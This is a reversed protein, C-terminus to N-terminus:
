IGLELLLLPAALGPGLRAAAHVRRQELLLLPAALGPGCVRPHVTDRHEVLLLPTVLSSVLNRVNGILITTWTDETGSRSPAKATIRRTSSFTGRM